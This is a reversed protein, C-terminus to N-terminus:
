GSPGAAACPLSHHPRRGRTKCLAWFPRDKRMELRQAHLAVVGAITPNRYLFNIAYRVQIKVAGKKQQEHLPASNVLMCSRAGARGYSSPIRLLAKVM